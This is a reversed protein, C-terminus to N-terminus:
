VRERCSARGIEPRFKRLIEFLDISHQLWAPDKEDTVFRVAFCCFVVSPCLNDIPHGDILISCQFLIQFLCSETLDLAVFIFLAPQANRRLLPSTTCGYCKSCHLAHCPKGAPFCFSSFLSSAIFYLISFFVTCSVSIRGSYERFSSRFLTTYPFLTSRPPRRIM